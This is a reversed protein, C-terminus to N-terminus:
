LSYKWSEQPGFFSLFFNPGLASVTFDTRLGQVVESYCGKKGVTKGSLRDKIWGMWKLQGAQIASFHDMASFVVHELSSNKAFGCTDKVAQEVGGPRVVHDDAGNLVLLPGAFAKRGVAVRDAWKKATPDKYWGQKVADLGSTILALM